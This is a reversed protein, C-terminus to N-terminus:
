AIARKIDSTIEITGSETTWVGGSADVLQVAYYLIVGIAQEDTDEPPGLLEALGTTPDENITIESASSYDQIADEDPDDDDLKSMWYVTCDTLDYPLGAYDLFVLARSFTDGRAHLIDAM